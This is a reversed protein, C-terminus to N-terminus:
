LPRVLSDSLNRKPKMEGAKLPFGRRAMYESVAAAVMRATRAADDKVGHNEEGYVKSAVDYILMPTAVPGGLPITILGPVAGSGGTTTFTLFPKKGRARGRLNYLFVTTNMKSGGLGTGFLIRLTASGSNVRDFRGTLLWGDTARVRGAPVRLAPAVSKDLRKVLTDSLSDAARAKAAAIKAPDKENVRFVADRADFNM